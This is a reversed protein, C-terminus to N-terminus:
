CSIKRNLRKHLWDQGNFVFFVWVNSYLLTGGIIIGSALIGLGWRSTYLHPFILNVWGHRYVHLTTIEQKTMMDGNVWGIPIQIIGLDGLAILGYFCAIIPVAIIEILRGSSVTKEEYAKTMRVKTEQYDLILSYIVAHLLSAAFPVMALGWGAAFVLESVQPYLAGTSLRQVASFYGGMFEVYSYLLLHDRLVTPSAFLAIGMCSAGVLVLGIDRVWLLWQRFVPYASRQAFQGYWATWKQKWTESM